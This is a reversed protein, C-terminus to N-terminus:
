DTSSPTMPRHKVLKELIELQGCIGLLCDRTSQQPIEANSTILNATVILTGKVRDVVHLISDEKDLESLNPPVSFIFEPANMNQNSITM